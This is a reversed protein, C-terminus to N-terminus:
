RPGGYNLNGKPYGYGFRARDTQRPATNKFFRTQNNHPSYITGKSMDRRDYPRWQFTIPNWSLENRSYGPGYADDVQQQTPRFEEPNNAVYLLWRTSLPAGLEDELPLNKPYVPTLGEGSRAFTVYPVTPGATISPATPQTEPIKPPESEYRGLGKSEGVGMPSVGGGPVPMSPGIQGTGRLRSIQLDKIQGDKRLNENEIHARETALISVDRGARSQTAAIARQINQGASSLGRSITDGGSEASSGGISIPSFSAPPAGLAFLPHIGAAKADNVKMTLGMMALEKQWQMQEHFQNQQIRNADNRAANQMNAGILGGAFDLGAGIVGGAASYPDAM